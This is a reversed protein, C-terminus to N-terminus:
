GGPKAWFDFFNYWQYPYRKCYSELRGAFDRALEEIRAEREKRSCDFSVHSKHVHMNYEPRLSLDGRRLAFVFYSPAELLAALFFAGFSFPAPEGLFPFVFYKNRTNASTRDGAIVILEGAAIRDQLLVVTDPGIDEVSILRTMSKPNVERLMRNFYATGSFDVISTVPIERSVGTKNFGALGRLLEANGLHSCILLAGRGRELNEILGEIDDQQFHIHTFPFKGGWSEMKEILTLSFAIIHRLPRVAPEQGPTEKRLAAAAKVLFRRSERGAKESFLYYFVSVPFSLLRLVIVPLIRFMILTLKLHWYGAAAERYESWHPSNKGSARM